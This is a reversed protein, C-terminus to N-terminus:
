GLEDFAFGAFVGPGAAKKLLSRARTEQILQDQHASARAQNAQQRRYDPTDAQKQGHFIRHGLLIALRYLFTILPFGYQYRRSIPQTSPL